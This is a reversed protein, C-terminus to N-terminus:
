KLYNKIKDKVLELNEKIDKEWVELLEYGNSYFFERKRIDNKVNKTQLENLSNKDYIEPNAHFYDGQVEIVKNGIIFDVRITRDIYKERKFDIKLSELFTRVFKEPNTESKDVKKINYFSYFRVITKESLNYKSKVLYYDLSNIETVFTQIDEYSMKLINKPTAIFKSSFLEKLDNELIMRNIVRKSLNLRSSLEEINLLKLELLIILNKLETDSYKYKRSESIKGYREKKVDDSMNLHFEKLFKSRDKKGENSHISVGLKSEHYCKRSCFRKHYKGVKNLSCNECIM